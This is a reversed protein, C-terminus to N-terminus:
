VQVTWGKATGISPDCTAAGPSGTFTIIHSGSTYTPLSYLIKNIESAELQTNTFAQSLDAIKPWTVDFTKLGAGKWGAICAALEPLDASFTSLMAANECLYNAATIKPANILLSSLNVCNRFCYFNLSTCKPLVLVATQLSSCNEFGGFGLVYNSLEIRAYNLSTNSASISAAALINDSSSVVELRQLIANNTCLASLRTASPINLILETTSPYGQPFLMSADRLDTLDTAIVAGNADFQIWPASTEPVPPMPPVLINEGLYIGDTM